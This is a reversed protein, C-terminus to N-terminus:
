MHSCLHEFKVHLMIQNKRLMQYAFKHKMSSRYVFIIPIPESMISSDFMCNICKFPSLFLSFCTNETWCATWLTWLLVLMHISLTKVLYVFNVKTNKVASKLVNKEESFSCISLIIKKIEKEESKKNKQKKGCAEALVSLFRRGPDVGKISAARLLAVFTTWSSFCCPASTLLSIDPPYQAKVNASLVWSWINISSSKGVTM